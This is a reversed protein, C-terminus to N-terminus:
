APEKVNIESVRVSLTEANDPIGSIPRMWADRMVERGGFDIDNEDGVLIGRTPSQFEVEWYDSFGDDDVAGVFGIVRMIRGINEPLWAKVTIALDGAKVNM